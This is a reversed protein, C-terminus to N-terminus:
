PLGNRKDGCGLRESEGRETQSKESQIDKWSFVNMPPESVSSSVLRQIEVSVLQPPPSPGCLSKMLIPVRLTAAFFAFFQCHRSRYLLHQLTLGPRLPFGKMGLTLDLEEGLAMESCGEGPLPRPMHCEGRVKWFIHHSLPSFAVM